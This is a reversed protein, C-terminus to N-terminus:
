TEVVKTSIGALDGSSTKGVIYVDITTSGVRYVKIDMLNDKLTKLLVQFKQVNEQEKKDHWEKEQACNRFFHELEVIEVLTEPPHNILELLKENTLIKAQNVWLFTEFPYDSESIMLLNNSAQKLKETIENAM